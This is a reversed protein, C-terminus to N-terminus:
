PSLIHDKIYRLGMEANREAKAKDEDEMAVPCTELTVTGNYGDEKVRTLLKELPLYGMGPLLHQWRGDYDSLHINEIIDRFVAYADLLDVGTTGIHTTDFTVFM